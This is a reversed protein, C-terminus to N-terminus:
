AVSRLGLISAWDIGAAWADADHWGVDPHAAHLAAVDVEFGTSAFFEYMNLLDADAVTARDQEVYRMPRGIRRALIAALEDGSTVMSAIEVRRGLFRAPDDLVRSVFAGIDDVMTLQRPVRGSVPVGFQGARLTGVAWPAVILDVFETPAVITFAPSVGRLHAEVRAKSDFHPVGTGRDASAVSSYVIHAVGSAVAADIATMAHRVETRVGGEVFPTAVVFAADAGSMARAISAPDDLDAIVTEAGLRRLAGAATADPDRVLARVAHKRELLHRVTAGGQAGTAGTVVIRKTPSM